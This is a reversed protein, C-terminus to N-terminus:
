KEIERDILEIILEYLRSFRAGTSTVEECKLWREAARQKTIESQTEAGCETCKVWFVTGVAGIIRAEGGCFPCKRLETKSM